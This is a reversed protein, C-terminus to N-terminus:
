AVKLIEYDCSTFRNEKLGMSRLNRSLGRRGIAPYAFIMRISSCVLDSVQMPM